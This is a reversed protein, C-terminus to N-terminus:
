HHYINLFKSYNHENRISDFVSTVIRNSIEFIRVASSAIIFEILVTCFYRVRQVSCLSCLEDFNIGSHYFYYLSYKLPMVELVQKRDAVVMADDIFKLLRQQDEGALLCKM